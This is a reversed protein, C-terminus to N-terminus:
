RMSNPPTATAPGTRWAQAPMRFTKCIRGGTRATASWSVPYSHPAGVVDTGIWDGTIMALYNPLSPHWVGNYNSAFNYQKALASIHPAAPNDLIGPSGFSTFANHNELVLVFVHDLAPVGGDHEDALAQGAALAMTASLALLYKHM